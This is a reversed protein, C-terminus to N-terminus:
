IVTRNSGTFNFHQFHEGRSEEQLQLIQTRIPRIILFRNRKEFALHSSDAYNELHMYKTLIIFLSVHQQAMGAWSYSM